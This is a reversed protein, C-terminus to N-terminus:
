YKFYIGLQLIGFVIGLLNPIMVTAEHILFGFTFWSASGIFTMVLPLLPFKAVSKTRIVEGAAALPAYYMVVNLLCALNGFPQASGQYVAVASAVVVLGVIGASTKVCETKDTVFAWYCLVFSTHLLLGILNIVLGQLMRPLDGM